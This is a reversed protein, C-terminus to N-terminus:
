VIFLIIDILLNFSLSVVYLFGFTQLDIQVKIRYASALLYQVDIDIDSILLCRKRRNLFILTRQIIVLRDVPGVVKELQVIIRDCPNQLVEGEVLFLYILCSPSCTEKGVDRM